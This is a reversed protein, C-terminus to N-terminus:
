RIQTIEISNAAMPKISICKCTTTRIKLVGNEISFNYGWKYFQKTDEKEFECLAQLGEWETVVREGEEPHLMDPNAAVIYHHYDEDFNSIGHLCNNPQLVVYREDSHTLYSTLKDNFPFGNAALSQKVIPTLKKRYFELINEKTVMTTNTKLQVAFTSYFISM